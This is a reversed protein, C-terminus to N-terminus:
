RGRGAARTFREGDTMKRNNFRWCQEDLYAELHFPECAVYTGVLMRKVLAWFIELGNTHIRGQAYSVAHDVAMRIFGEEPLKNYAGHADTMVFSGKEVNRKIIDTIHPRRRFEALETRVQSPSGNAGRELMGVVIAM